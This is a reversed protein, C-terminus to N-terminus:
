ARRRGFLWSRTGSKEKPAEGATLLKVSTSQEEILKLLRDRENRLDTKDAELSSIRQTM